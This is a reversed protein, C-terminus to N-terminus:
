DEPDRHSHDSRRTSSRSATRRSVCHLHQELPRNRTPRRVPSAAGGDDHFGGHRQLSAHVPTTGAPAAQGTGCWFVQQNHSGTILTVQRETRHRRDAPQPSDPDDFEAWLERGRMRLVMPRGHVDAVTVNDFSPLATDPTAVQTM